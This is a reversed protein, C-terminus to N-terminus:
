DGHTDLIVDVVKGVSSFILKTAISEEPVGMMLSLAQRYLRLQGRYSDVTQDLHKNDQIANSKFDIIEAFSRDKAIIARDIVGTIWRQDIVIEFLQERWLYVAHNPKRLTDNIASASMSTKFQDIVTEISRSPLTSSSRWADIIPDLPKEDSFTVREFLEHIAHGFDIAERNLPRFLTGASEVEERHESPRVRLLRARKSPSAAYGSPMTHALPTSTTDKVNVTTYWNTEGVLFHTPIESEGGMHYAPSECAALQDGLFDAAHYRTASPKLQDAILYLGRKARTLAVYLVCLDDYTQDESMRTHQNALTVDTERIAKRPNKLLWTLEDEEDRAKLLSQDRLMGLSDGQLEPVIVMDFGLGKSQHVTMVRVTSEAGQENLQYAELFRLFEAISRNGGADFETAALLLDEVRKTSFDSLAANEGVETTWAHLFGRFGEEHIEQLVRRSIQPVSIERAELLPQIPSM